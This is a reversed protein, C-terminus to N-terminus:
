REPWRTVSRSVPALDRAWDREAQRIRPRMACRMLAQFQTYRNVDGIVGM